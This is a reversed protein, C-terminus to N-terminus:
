KESRPKDKVDTTAGADHAMLRRIRNNREEVLREELQNRDTPTLLVSLSALAKRAEPYANPPAVQITPSAMFLLAAAEIIDKHVGKGELYLLGLDIAGDTWGADASIRLWHIAEFYNKQTGVGDLFLKGLLAQAAPFGAHAAESILRFAEKEDRSAGKNSLIGRGLTYKEAPGSTSTSSSVTKGSGKDAGSSHAGSIDILVGGDSPSIPASDAMCPIEVLGTQLLALGAAFIMSRAFFRM